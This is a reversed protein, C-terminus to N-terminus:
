CDPSSPGGDNWPFHRMAKIAKAVYYACEILQIALEIFSKM